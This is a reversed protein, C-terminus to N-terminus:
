KINIVQILGFIHISALLFGGASGEGIPFILECGYELSIPFFPCLTFGILFTAIILIWVNKAYLLGMFLLLGVIALSANIVLIRKYKLTKKLYINWFVAGSAGGIM